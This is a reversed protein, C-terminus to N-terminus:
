SVTRPTDGYHPKHMRRYVYHVLLGILIAAIVFPLYLVVLAFANLLIIPLKYTEGLLIALIGLCGLLKSSDRAISFLCLVIAALTAVLITTGVFVEVSLRIPLALSILAVCAFGLGAVGLRNDKVYRGM